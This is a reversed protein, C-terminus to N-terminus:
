AKQAYGNIFMEVFDHNRYNRINMREIHNSDKLTQFLSDYEKRSMWHEIENLGDADLAAMVKGVFRSLWNNQSAIKVFTPEIIVIKEKAFRVAISLLELIDKYKLHHLIDCLLITDAARYRDSDLINGLQIDLNRKQGYRIFEENLDIGSYICDPYLYRKMRGFGCAPEFVSKNPGIIDKLIKLGDFYLFRIGIDYLSPYRFFISKM